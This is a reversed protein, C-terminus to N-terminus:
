RHISYALICCVINITKSHDWTYDTVLLHPPVNALLLHTDWELTDSFKASFFVELANCYISPIQTTHCSFCKDLPTLRVVKRTILQIFLM